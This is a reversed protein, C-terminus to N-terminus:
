LSLVSDGERIQVPLVDHAQVAEGDMMRILYKGAAEVKKRHDQEM